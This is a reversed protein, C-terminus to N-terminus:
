EPQGPKLEHLDVEGALVAAIVLGTRDNAGFLDRAETMYGAPFITSCSFSSSSTGGRSRDSVWKM